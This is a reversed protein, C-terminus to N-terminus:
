GGSIIPNIMLRLEDILDRWTEEDDAMAWDLEGKPGEIFGDVSTQLYAIIKRM